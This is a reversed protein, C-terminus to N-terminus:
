LRPALHERSSTGPPTPFQRHTVFPLSQLLLCDKAAAARKLSDKISTVPEVPVHDTTHVCILRLRVASQTRPKDDGALMKVCNTSVTNAAEQPFGEPPRGKIQRAGGLTCSPRHFQQEYKTWALAHFRVPQCQMVNQRVYRRCTM